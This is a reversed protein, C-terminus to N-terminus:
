PAFRRMREVNWNHLKRLERTKIWDQLCHLHCFHHTRDLSPPLNMMTVGAIGDASLDHNMGENGLVLRYEACNTTFTIDNGCADCVITVTKM